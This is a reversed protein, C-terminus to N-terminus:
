KQKSTQLYIIIIYSTSSSELSTANLISDERSLSGNAFEEVVEAFINSGKPLLGEM